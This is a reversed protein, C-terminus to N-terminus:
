LNEMTEEFNDNLNEVLKTLEDYNLVDGAVANINDVVQKIYEDIHKM